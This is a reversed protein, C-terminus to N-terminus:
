TSFIFKRKFYFETKIIFPLVHLCHIKKKTLKGEGLLLGEMRRKFLTNYDEVLDFTAIIKGLRDCFSNFKGFVYNESFNFPEQDPIFPQNKVISYTKRYVRNLVICHTLKDKILIQDQSWITEKGRCTIYDKCTEIM